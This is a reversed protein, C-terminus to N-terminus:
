FYEIALFFFLIVTSGPSKDVLTSFQTKLTFNHTIFFIAWFTVKCTLTM